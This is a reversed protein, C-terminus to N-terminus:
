QIYILTITANTIPGGGALNINFDNADIINGSTEVFNNGDKVTFSIVTKNLNHSITNNGNNLTQTIELSLIGGSPVGGALEFFFFENLQNFLIDNDTVAVTGGGTSVVENVETYFFEYVVSGSSERLTVSNQNKTIYLNAILTFTPGGVVTVTVNGNDEKTITITNPDLM